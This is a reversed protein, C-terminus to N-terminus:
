LHKEYFIKTSVAAISLLGNRSAARVWLAVPADKMCGIQLDFDGRGKYLVKKGETMGCSDISRAVSDRHRTKCGM